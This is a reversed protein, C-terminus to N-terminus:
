DPIRLAGDLGVSILSNGGLQQEIPPVNAPGVPLVKGDKVERPKSRVLQSAPLPRGNRLHEWMLNLAQTFYVHLPVYRTDFGAIGNLVDLHHANTIEYYHLKSAPEVSKNLAYYGRAAYNPPLIADARGDVMVAPKGRLKGSMRTEEIGRRVRRHKELMDGQLPQGTAADVGTALARLCLAGDLNLDRMGTSPSISIRDEKAGGPSLNNVLNIGATPPIGNSGAFSLELGVAPVPEGANAGSAATAAFSYGCLNDTVSFRGYSYAYTVAIGQQVALTYHSPLVANSEPLVGYENILGQSEASQEPLTKSKLLGKAALSACRAERLPQPVTNLPAGANQEALSACPLYLNLLTTVDFLSRNNNAFSRSGQVIQPVPAGLLSANPESVAVGDILGREDQEAAALAAYGGNSVSSAIVITNEPAYRGARADKLGNLVYFAFDIAALTHRGWDKEPHRQSHAHKVAVRNPYDRLYRAREEPSLAATFLSDGGAREAAAREGTILNVTDSALDHFGTGTGKDTYAVACGRKLAWEGSTGIAGYVGRSGSSSATVICPEKPNFRQPVQVMLTVNDRGSGDDLFTLFEDGAIKGEGLTDKGALDINPGYLVGYGGAPSTDALARYNAHIARRRLDAATPSKADRVAPPTPLGLGSKGLGATLLDDATGDYQTHLIKQKSFDPATACGAICLLAGALFIRNM